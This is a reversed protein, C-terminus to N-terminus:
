ELTSRKRGGSTIGSWSSSSPSPTTSFAKAAARQAALGSGPRVHSLVWEVATAGGPEYRPAQRWITVLIRHVEADVDEDPLVSATIARVLPQVIDILAGFAAVDGTGSALLLDSIRGTRCSSYGCRGREMEPAADPCVM